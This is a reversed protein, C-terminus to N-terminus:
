LADEAGGRLCWHWAEDFTVVWIAGISSWTGESVFHTSLYQDISSASAM